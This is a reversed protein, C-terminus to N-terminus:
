VRKNAWQIVQNASGLPDRWLESGTFRFIEMGAMQAARDRERDRTAQEKTREHFDHGDCEVILRDWGPKRAEGEARDWTSYVNFVFDARWGAVDVQKQAFITHQGNFLGPTAAQLLRRAAMQEETSVVLMQTFYEQELYKISLLMSGFLLKEIPTDGWNGYQAYGNALAAVDAAVQDCIQEQLLDFGFKKSM